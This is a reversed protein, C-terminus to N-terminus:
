ADDGAQAPSEQAEGKARAERRRALRQRGQGADSAAPARRPESPAAVAQALRVAQAQATPLEFLELLQLQANPFRTKLKEHLQVLLLSHGGLDFFNDHLGVTETQLVEKWVGVVTREVENSPAVYAVTREARGEPIPLGRHDVKGNVTRPLDELAVYTGPVMYEPLKGRLHERLRSVRGEEEGSGMGWVVYAVLRKDGPTDERVVV